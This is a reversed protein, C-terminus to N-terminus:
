YQLTEILLDIAEEMEIKNSVKVLIQFIEKGKIQLMM